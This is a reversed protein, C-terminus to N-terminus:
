RRVMLLRKSIIHALRLPEPLRYNKCCKLVIDIASILDIKNGPSIFIPKSKDKSCLVAGVTDEGEKLLSYAGKSKIPEEYTGILRNKACGITPIDLIIGLHTALGMRRPHAIGHGNFIFIDPSIKLRKIARLIVEGERFALLSPIYPFKVKLIEEKREILNLNPLELCVVVGYAKDEKYAVDAGGVIKIKKRFKIIKIREKLEEQIDIAKSLSVNFPHDM